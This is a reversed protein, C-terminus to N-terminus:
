HVGDVGDGSGIHQAGGGNAVIVYGQDKSKKEM